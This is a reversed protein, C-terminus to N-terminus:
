EKITLEEGTLAHYLNQLQHIHKVEAVYDSPSYYNHYLYVTDREDSFACLFTNRKDEYDKIELVCDYVCDVEFGFRLCWEETIPIGSFQYIEIWTSITENKVYLGGTEIGTVKFITSEEHFLVFNGIRLEEAKM